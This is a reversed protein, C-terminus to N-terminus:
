VFISVVLAIVGSACAGILVLNAPWEGNVGKNQRYGIWSAYGVVTLISAFLLKLIIPIVTEFYVISMVTTAAIAPVIARSLVDKISVFVM